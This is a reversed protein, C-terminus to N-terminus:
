FLHKPKLTSVIKGGPSIGIGLGWSQDEQQSREHTMAAAEIQIDEFWTWFMVETVTIIWVGVSCYHGPSSFVIM